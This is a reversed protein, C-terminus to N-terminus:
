EITIYAYFQQTGLVLLPTVLMSGVGIGLVLLWADLQPTPVVVIRVLLAVSAFPVVVLLGGVTLLLGYMVVLSTYERNYVLQFSRRIAAIPTSSELILIIPAFSWLLTILPGVLPFFTCLLSPIALIAALGIVARWPLHSFVHILNVNKQTISLQIARTVSCSLVTQGIGLGTILSVINNSVPSQTIINPLGPSPAVLTLLLHVHSHFLPVNGLVATIAALLTFPVLHRKYLHLSQDTITGIDAFTCRSRQIDRSMGGLIFLVVLGIAFITAAQIM